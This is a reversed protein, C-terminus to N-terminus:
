KMEVREFGSMFAIKTFVDNELEDCLAYGCTNCCFQLEQMDPDHTPTKREAFGIGKCKPCAIYKEQVFLDWVKVGLADAIKDLTKVTPNGKIAKSLGFASMGVKEALAKQTVGQQKAIEKIRLIM